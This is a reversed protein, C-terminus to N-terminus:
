SVGYMQIVADVNGSSQKFALANIASTTNFYGSLYNNAAINDFSYVVTTVLFKKAFATSSPSYLHLIGAMCEDAGNGQQNNDCLWQYSTWPSAGSDAGTIYNLGGTAGEPWYGRYFTTTMNTNYNSGGDTSGQFSFYTQDTAPNVDTFVFAYEDYTSDINATIEILALNTATTTSILTWGGGALGSNVSSLTGSGDSTWLTNGGTDKFTNARVETSAFTVTDSADGLTLTTTAGEPEITTSRVKGM